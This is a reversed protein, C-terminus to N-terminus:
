KHPGPPKNPMPFRMQVRRIDYSRNILFTGYENILLMYRTGDAKWTVWYHRNM